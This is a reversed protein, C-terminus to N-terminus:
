GKNQAQLLIEDLIKDNDEDNVERELLTSATYVVLESIQKKVDLVAQKKEREINALAKQNIQNAQENANAIIADARRHARETAEKFKEAAEDEILDLRAYVELSKKEATDMALEAEKIKQIELLNRKDLMKKVKDFLLFRFALYILLTNALTVIVESLEFEILSNFVGESAVEAVKLYANLLM